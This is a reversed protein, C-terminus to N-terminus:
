TRSPTCRVSNSGRRFPRCALLRLSSEGQMFLGYDGVEPLRDRLARYVSDKMRLKEDSKRVCNGFNPVGAEDLAHMHQAATPPAALTRVMAEVMGVKEGPRPAGAGAHSVFGFL